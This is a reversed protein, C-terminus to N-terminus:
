EMIGQRLSSCSHGPFSQPFHLFHSEHIYSRETLNMLSTLLAYSILSHIASLSLCCFPCKISCSRQPVMMISLQAVRGNIM